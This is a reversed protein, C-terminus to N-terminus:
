KRELVLLGISLFLVEGMCFFQSVSTDRICVPSSSGPPLAYSKEQGPRCLCKQQLHSRARSIFPESVVCRIAQTIKGVHDFCFACPQRHPQRSCRKIGGPTHWMSPMIEPLMNHKRGTTCPPPPLSVIRLSGIRYAAAHFVRTGRLLGHQAQSGARPKFFGLLLVAM